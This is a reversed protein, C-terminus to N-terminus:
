TYPWRVLTVTVEAPKSAPRAKADGAFMAQFFPAVESRLADKMPAEEDGAWGELFSAVSGERMAPEPYTGKPGGRRSLAARAEVALLMAGDVRNAALLERAEKLRVSVAILNQNTVDAAFFKLTLQELEDLMTAVRARAPSPEESEAAAAELVERFRLNAEAEGLYYVGSWPKSAKAYPLSADYLRKARTVASEILGRELLTGKGKPERMEFRVRSKEWLAQFADISDHAQKERAVFALTEIGVFPDRLRYLRYEFPTARKARDLAKAYVELGPRMDEPLDAPKVAKLTEELRAIERDVRSEEAFAACAFVLSAVAAIRM